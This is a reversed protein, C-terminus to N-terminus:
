LCFVGLQIEAASFVKAFNIKQILNIGNGFESPLQFTHELKKSLLLQM